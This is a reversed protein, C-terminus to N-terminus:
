NLKKEKIWKIANDFAKRVSVPEDKGYAKEIKSLAVQWDINEMRADLKNAAAVRATHDKKRVLIEYYENIAFPDGLKHLSAYISTKERETATKIFSKIFM